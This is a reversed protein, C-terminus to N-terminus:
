HTFLTRMSSGDNGGYSRGFIYFRRQSTPVRRLTM